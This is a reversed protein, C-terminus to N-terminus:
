SAPLEIDPNTELAELAARWVAAIKDHDPFHSLLRGAAWHQRASPIGNRRSIESLAADLAVVVGRAEDYRALLAGVAGDAQLLDAIADRIRSDHLSLHFELQKIEDDLLKAAAEAGTHARTAEDLARTADAVSVIDVPPAMGMLKDVLRQPQEEEARRVAAAAEARASRLERLDLRTRAEVLKRHQERARDRREITARLHEREPSREALEESL